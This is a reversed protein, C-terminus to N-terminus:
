MDSESAHDINPWCVDLSSTLSSSDNRVVQALRHITNDSDRFKPSRALQTSVAQPFLPPSLSCFVRILLVPLFYYPTDSAPYYPFLLTDLLLVPTQSTDRKAKSM